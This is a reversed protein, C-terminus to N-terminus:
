QIVIVVVLCVFIKEMIGSYSAIVQKAREDLEYKAGDILQDQITTWSSQEWSLKAKGRENEFIGSTLIFVLSVCQITCSHREKCFLM